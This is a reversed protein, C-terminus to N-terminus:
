GMMKQTREKIEEHTLEEKHTAVAWRHGFPDVLQGYRDGWFQDSAPMTVKAGAKEARAMVADVDPVYLTITVSSGGISKPGLTGGMEQFEPFEDNLMLFSDGIKIEAHMLKGGPGPMRAIEEAGFAQKYFEIAAAAGGITLHPTVTRHGEPVFSKAKAM